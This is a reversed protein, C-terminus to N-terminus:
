GDALRVALAVQDRLMRLDALTQPPIEALTEALEVYVLGVALGSLPFLLFAKPACARIWDPLRDELNSAAVDGIFMDTRRELAVRALDAPGSLPFETFAMPAGLVVRRAMREGAAVFVAVRRAMLGRLLTEAAMNLIERVPRGQALAAAVERTGGALTGAEAADPRDPLVGLDPEVRVKPTEEPLAAADPLHIPLELVGAFDALFDRSEAWATAVAPRSLKMWSAWPAFAEMVADLPDM